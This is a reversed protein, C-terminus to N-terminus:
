KGSSKRVPVDIVMNLGIEVFEKEFRWIIYGLASM